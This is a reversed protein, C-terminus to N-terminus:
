LQWLRGRRRGETERNAEREPVGRAYATERGKRGNRVAEGRFWGGPSKGDENRDMKCCKRSGNVGNISSSQRVGVGVCVCM